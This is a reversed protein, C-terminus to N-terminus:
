QCVAPNDLKWHRWDIRSLGGSERALDIAERAAVTMPEWKLRGPITDMYDDSFDEFFLQRLTWKGADLDVIEYYGLVMRGRPGRGLTRIVLSEEPFKTM